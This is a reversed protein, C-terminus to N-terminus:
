RAFHSSTGLLQSARVQYKRLTDRSTLYFVAELFVCAVDPWGLPWLSSLKVRYSAYAIALAVLSNSYFQYHKYHIEILLDFAEVNVGLKSFDLPPQPLGTRAHLTDITAWRVANIVMGASLSAVTLYLFGGITPAGDPGTAFWSRLTASFQSFGLLVMAGPVLYAIVPGFNDKTVSQMPVIVCYCCHATLDGSLRRPPGEVRACCRLQGLPVSTTGKPTRGGAEVEQQGAKRPFRM